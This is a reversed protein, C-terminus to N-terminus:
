ASYTPLYGWQRLWSELLANFGEPNVKHLWHGAQLLEVRDYTEDVGAEKEVDIGGPSAAVVLRPIPDKTAKVSKLYTSGSAGLREILGLCTEGVVRPEIGWARVKNWIPLWDPASLYVGANELWATSLQPADAPDRRLQEALSTMLTPTMFYSPDVLVLGRVLEPHRAALESAIICGLSHGFFIAPNDASVNLHRALATVDDSLTIPDFESVNDQVTSRGHGRLDLALVRFRQTLLLPIQFVWDTQDCTWGHLLIIPIGSDPGQVTYFLDSGNHPFYGSSM